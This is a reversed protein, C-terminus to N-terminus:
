NKFMSEETISITFLLCGQLAFGKHWTMLAQIQSMQLFVSSFFYDGFVGVKHTM